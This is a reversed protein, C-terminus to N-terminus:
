CGHDADFDVRDPGLGNSVVRDPGTGGAGERRGAQDQDHELELTIPLGERQAISQMGARVLVNQAWASLEIKAKSLRAELHEGFSQAVFKLNPGIQQKIMQVRSILERQTGVNMKGLAGTEIDHMLRDLRAEVDAVTEAGERNFEHQEDRHPIGPRMKTDGQVYTITCPVGEGVNFSSVFAAWQAESMDLRIFEKRTHMWDRSLNRHLESEFVSISVYHQHEFDSGYLTAKGSVRSIAIQGFAPHRLKYDERAGDRKIVEPEEIPRAM